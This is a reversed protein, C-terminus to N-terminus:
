GAWTLGDKVVVNGSAMPGVVVAFPLERPGDLDDYVLQEILAYGADTLSLAAGDRAVLGDAQLGQIQDTWSAQSLFRSRAPHRRPDEGVYLREMLWIRAEHPSAEGFSPLDSTGLDQAARLWGEPAPIQRHDGEFGDETRKGEDYAYALEAVVVDGLAAHAPNGACVGCMALCRPRLCEVLTSVVPATATAGMRTPRALAVTM